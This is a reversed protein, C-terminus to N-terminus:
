KPENLYGWFGKLAQPLGQQCADDIVGGICWACCCPFWRNSKFDFHRRRGYNVTPCAAVPIGHEHALCAQKAAQEEKSERGREKM